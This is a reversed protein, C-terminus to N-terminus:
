QMLRGFMDYSITEDTESRGDVENTQACSQSEFLRACVFMEVGVASRMLVTLRFNDSSFSSFWDPSADVNVFSEHIFEERLRWTRTVQMWRNGLYGVSDPVWCYHTFVGNAHSSQFHLLSRHKEIARRKSQGVEACCVFSWKMWHSDWNWERTQERHPVTWGESDIGLVGINADRLRIVKDFQKFQLHLTDVVPSWNTFRDSRACDTNISLQLHHSSDM